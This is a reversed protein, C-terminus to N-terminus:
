RGGGHRATHTGPNRVGDGPSQAGAHEPVIQYAAPRPRLAARHNARDRARVATAWDEYAPSGPVRVGSGTVIVFPGGADEPAEIAPSQGATREREILEEDTVATLGAAERRLLEADLGDLTEFDDDAAARAAAALLEETTVAM